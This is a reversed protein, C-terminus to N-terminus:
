LKLYPQMKEVGFYEIAALTNHAKCVHRLNDPSHNGGIIFPKLHDFQLGSRSECRRKTVPDIYECQRGSRAGILNRVHVPIYRSKPGTEAPTLKVEQARLSARHTANSRTQNQTFFRSDDPTHNATDAPLRPTRRKVFERMATKFIEQLGIAPNGKLEKMGQVLELFEQDVELTIRTRDSTVPRIQETKRPAAAQSVLVREVERSPKGLIERLLSVTQEPRLKERRAHAGLKATATLTLKGSQLEEKVEPVKAILRVASVRDFAQSESYRLAKHVYEWLSSYGRAAYLRRRDIEALHELLVLTAAKENAAALKTETLLLDNPISTLNKM